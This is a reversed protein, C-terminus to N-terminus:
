ALAPFSTAIVWHSLLIKKKQPKCLSKVQRLYEIFNNVGVSSYHPKARVVPDTQLLM